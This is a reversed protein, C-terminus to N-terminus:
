EIDRNQKHRSKNEIGVKHPTNSPADDEETADHCKLTAAERTEVHPDCGVRKMTLNHCGADESACRETGVRRQSEADESASTGRKLQHPIECDVGMRPGVDESASTGRKLRHPSRVIWRGEPTRTPVSSPTEPESAIIKLNWMPQPPSHLM